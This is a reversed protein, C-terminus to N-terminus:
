PHYAPQQEGIREDANVSDPGNAGIARRSELDRNKIAGTAMLAINAGLM